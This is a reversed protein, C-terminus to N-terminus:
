RFTVQSTYWKIFDRLGERFDTEAVWGFQEKARTTDLIRRKQGDIGDNAWVIKGHYDIIQAIYFALDKISIEQGSGLNCPEDSDYYEMAQVIGKACDKVHLFERTNNGSGLLKVIPEKKQKAELIKHCIGPIVHSTVPDLNDRPGYLNTPMLTIFNLGFEKKAAQGMVMIAKKAVGYPANSHHPYGNWLDGEKFPTPPEAPYACITSLNVFKKLPKNAYVSTCILNQGMVVNDYFLTMPKEKNLLIGGVKAACHIIVDPSYKNLMNEVQDYLTLDCHDRHLQDVNKYGSSVLQEYVYKGVFGFGGTILIIDNKNIM